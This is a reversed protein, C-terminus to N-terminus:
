MVYEDLKQKLESVVETYENIKTNQEEVFDLLNTREKAFEKCSNQFSEKEINLNHVEAELRLLEENNSERILTLEESKIKEKELQNKLSEIDTGEISMPIKLTISAELKRAYEKTKILQRKLEEREEVLKSNVMKINKLDGETKELKKRYENM